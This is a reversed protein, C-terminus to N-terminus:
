EGPRAHGPKAHHRHKMITHHNWWAALGALAVVLFPSALGYIQLSTM